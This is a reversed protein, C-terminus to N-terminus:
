SGEDQRAVPLPEYPIMGHTMREAHEAAMLLPRLQARLGIVMVVAYVALIQDPPLIEATIGVARMSVVLLVYGATRAIAQTITIPLAKAALLVGATARFDLVRPTLDDPGPKHMRRM